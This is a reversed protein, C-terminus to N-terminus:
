LCAKGWTNGLQDGVGFHLATSGYYGVARVRGARRMKCLEKFGKEMDPMSCFRVDISTGFPHRGAAGGVNANYPEPRWWNYILCVAINKRELDQIIKVAEIPFKWTSIDPNILQHVQAQGYTCKFTSLSDPNPRILQQCWPSSATAARCEDLFSQKKTNGLNVRALQNSSAKRCGVAESHRPDLEGDDRFGGGSNSDPSCSVLFQLSLIFILSHCNRSSLLKSFM